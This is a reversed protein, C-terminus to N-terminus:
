ADDNAPRPIPASNRRFYDNGGRRCPIGAACVPLRAPAGSVTELRPPYRTGTPLQCCSFAAPTAKMGIEGVHGVHRRPASHLTPPAPMSKLRTVHSGEILVVSYSKSTVLLKKIAPDFEPQGFHPADISSPNTGSKACLEISIPLQCAPFGLFDNRRRVSTDNLSPIGM